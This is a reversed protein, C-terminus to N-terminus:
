PYVLRFFVSGGAPSIPLLIQNTAGSGTLSVWNSGIGVNPPNTQAQLEWGVHNSPWNFQIGNGVIEFGLQPLSLSVPRASIEASYASEQALINLGTVVYYYAVGDALAGDTFTANTLANAVQTYPGGSVTARYVNYFRDSSTWALTVLGDGSSASLGAPAAV